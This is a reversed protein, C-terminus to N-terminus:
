EDNVDRGHGHVAEKARRAQRGGKHRVKATGEMDRRCKLGVAKIGNRQSYYQKKKFFDSGDM